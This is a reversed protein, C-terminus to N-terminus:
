SWYYKITNTINTNLFHKLKKLLNTPCERFIEFCDIIVVCNLFHRRFEM